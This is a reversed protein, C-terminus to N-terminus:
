RGAISAVYVEWFLNHGNDRNNGRYEVGSQKSPVLTASPVTAMPM